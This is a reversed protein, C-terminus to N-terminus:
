VHGWNWNRIIRLRHRDMKNKGNRINFEAATECDRIPSLSNHIQGKNQL